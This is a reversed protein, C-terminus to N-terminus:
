PDQQHARWSCLWGELAQMPSKIAEPWPQDQALPSLPFSHQDRGVLTLVCNARYDRCTIQGHQPKARDIIIQVAYATDVDSGLESCQALTPCTDIVQVDVDLIDPRDLVQM